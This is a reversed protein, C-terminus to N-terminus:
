GKGDIIVVEGVLVDLPAAMLPAMNTQSWEAARKGAEEAGAKDAFLTVSAYSDPGTDVLYYTVFGPIQHMIPLFGERVQKVFQEKVGPIVQAKRISAYM